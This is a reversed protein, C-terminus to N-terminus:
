PPGAGRLSIACASQTASSIANAPPSTPSMPERPTNSRRPWPDRHAAVHLRAREESPERHLVYRARRRRARFRVGHAPYLLRSLDQPLQQDGDHRRRCGEPRVDAHRVNGLLHQASASRRHIRREIAWGEQLAYEIQASIQADTLDPLFSFQGQTIRNGHNTMMPTFRRLTDRLLRRTAVPVFDATDTSDYNFTIDGWTDLAAQLPSCWKAADELIEPGENCIDRGENRAMVMAELAVRNAIAGAQIGVPHGITGGGFQLVVDEGLYDLLQHMQGAHIGGSAVPM